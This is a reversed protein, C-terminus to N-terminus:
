QIKLLGDHVTKYDIKLHENFDYTRSKGTTRSIEPIPSVYPMGDHQHTSVTAFASIEIASSETRLRERILLAPWENVRAVAQAV